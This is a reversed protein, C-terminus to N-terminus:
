PSPNPTTSSSPSPSPNPKKTSTPEPKPTAKPTPEPTSEPEPTPTSLPSASPSPSPIPTASSCTEEDENWSYGCYECHCDDSGPGNNCGLNGAPSDCTPPPTDDPDNPDTGAEEEEGDTAGDGDSDEENPDTENNVEDGDSVGDDDSDADLPDTKNEIEEGDSLGDNDTDKDNPDTKNNVEDGDSVGDDDSDPDNPDTGLEEENADTLGDNDNDPAANDGVGGGADGGGGSDESTQCYGDDNCEGELNGKVCLTGPRKKECKYLMKNCNICGADGKAPHCHHNELCAVEQLQYSTDCVQPPSGDIETLTPVCANQNNCTICREDGIKRLPGSVTAYPYLYRYCAETNACRNACYNEEPLNELYKFKVFWHGILPIPSWTVYCTVYKVQGNSDMCPVKGCVNTRSCDQGIQGPITRGDSTKITHCPPYDICTECDVSASMHIMSSKLITGERRFIIGHNAETDMINGGIRLTCGESLGGRVEDLKKALHEWHRFTSCGYHLVTTNCNSTICLKYGLNLVALGYEPDPDGHMINYAYVHDNCIEANQWAYDDMNMVLEEVSDDAFFLTSEWICRDSDQVYNVLELFYPSLYNIADTIFFCCSGPPPLEIPYTKKHKFAPDTKPAKASAANDALYDPPVLPMAPDGLLNLALIMEQTQPNNTQSLLGLRTDTFVQGLSAGSQLASSNIFEAEIDLDLNNGGLDNVGYYSYGIWAVGGGNPNTLWAEAIGDETFRATNCGASFMISPSVTNDLKQIDDQRISEEGISLSYPNGTDAHLVYQYGSNIALLAQDRNPTDVYLDVMMQSPLNALLTNKADTNNQGGLILTTGAAPIVNHDYDLVKNVFVRAETENEIPARGVFIDPYLDLHDREDAYLGNYNTDWNHDLDAYYYDSPFFSNNSSVTSRIYRAPIINSDGGLLVWTLGQMAHMQRLYNRIKEPLDRGIMTQQIHEVSEMRASLGQELKSAILPHFVGSKILDDSTIILYDVSELAPLSLPNNLLSVSSLQPQDMQTEMSEPNEVVDRILDRIAEKAKLSKSQLPDNTAPTLSRGLRTKSLMPYSLNRILSVPPRLHIKFRINKHVTLTKKAPSYSLPYVYVTAIKQGALTGIKHLVVPKEPFLAASGYVAPDPNDSDQVPPIHYEGALPATEDALIEIHSYDLNQGLAFHLVKVPLQPQGEDTILGCDPLRVTDFGNLQNFILKEPQFDYTASIEHDTAFTPSTTIGSILIFLFVYRYFQKM